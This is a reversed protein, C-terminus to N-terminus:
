QVRVTHRFFLDEDAGDMVSIVVVLAGVGITVGLISIMTIVTVLAGSERSFLYRRAIFSGYSM